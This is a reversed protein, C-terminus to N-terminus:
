YSWHHSIFCTVYGFVPFDIVYLINFTITRWWKGEQHLIQVAQLMQIWYLKVVVPLLLKNASNNRFFSSLDTEGREM